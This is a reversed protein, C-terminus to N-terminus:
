NTSPSAPCKRLHVNLNKTLSYVVQKTQIHHYVYLENGHTEAAVAIREAKAQQKLARLANVSAGAM